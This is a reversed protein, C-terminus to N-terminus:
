APLPCIIIVYEDVAHTLLLADTVTVTLTLEVGADDAEPLGDVIHGPVPVIRLTVPPLKLEPAFQYQYLVDHPPDTDM